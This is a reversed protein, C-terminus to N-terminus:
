WDVQSGCVTQKGTFVRIQLFLRSPCHEVHQLSLRRSPCYRPISLPGFWFFIDSHDFHLPQASYITLGISSVMRRAITSLSISHLKM